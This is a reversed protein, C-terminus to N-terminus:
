WQPLGKGPLPKSGILGPEVKVTALLSLLVQFICIGVADVSATPLM